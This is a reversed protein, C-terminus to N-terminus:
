LITYHVRGTFSLSIFFLFKRIIGTSLLLNREGGEESIMSKRSSLITLAKEERHLECSAKQLSTLGTMLDQGLLTKGLSRPLTWHRQVISMLTTVRWQGTGMLPASGLQM